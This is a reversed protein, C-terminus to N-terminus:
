ALSLFPKAVTTEKPQQLAYLRILTYSPRVHQEGPDNLTSSVDPMISLELRYFFRSCSVSASSQHCSPQLSYFNTDSLVVFPFIPTSLLKHGSMFQSPSCSYTKLSLNQVLFNKILKYKNYFLLFNTTVVYSLNSHWNLKIREGLLVFLIM